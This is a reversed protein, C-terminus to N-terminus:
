VYILRHCQHRSDQVIYLVTLSGKTPEGGEGAMYAVLLQLSM